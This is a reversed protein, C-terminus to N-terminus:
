AAITSADADLADAIAHLLANKVQTDAQALDSQARAAADAKACVGSFVEGNLEDKTM